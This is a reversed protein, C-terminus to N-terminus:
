ACVRNRGQEKAKYLAKDARNVAEDENKDEGLSTAVGASVTVRGVTAFVREQVAWRIKEAITRAGAANTDPLIVMFEEGGYRSVFDTARVSEAMVKALQRLVQDGAEHGYHDNIMKFHDIDIFVVAYANGSRKMRLFEERLRGTAALRNNLQTLADTRSLRELEKNANLLSETRAAVEHELDRLHSELALEAIRRKTIDLMSGRFGATGGEVDCVREGKLSIWVASGDTHRGELELEFGAGDREADKMLRDLREWSDITLVSGRQDPFTPLDRGFMERVSESVTMARTAADYRWEGFGAVRHVERLDDARAALLRATEAIAEAVEASERIPLDPLSVPEARRMALAPARLAQVSLAIKRGAQLAIGLGLMLLTVVGLAALKLNDVLASRLESEPVGIGVSWGTVGSRSWASMTPIGERTVTEMWGERNSGINRIFEATGKQGVFEEHLHTRAAIAGTADFIAAVWGAPFKQDSLIRKFDDPLMGIALVYKVHGGDMVPVDVSVVPTRLVGGVYVNSIVPQATALVARHVAQNGHRPLPEGLPKLTNLLQQGGQDTLVFNMGVDTSAIVNRGVRHLEALDGSVAAGSVAIAQTATRAMSLKRDVAQVLARATAINDLRLRELGERYLDVILFAAAITGPLLSALVVWLLVTSIRWGSRSARPAAINEQSRM